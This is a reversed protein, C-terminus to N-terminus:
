RGPCAASSKPVSSWGIALFWLSGFLGLAATGALRGLV